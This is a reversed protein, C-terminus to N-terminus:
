GSISLTCRARDTHARCVRLARIGNAANGAGGTYARRLWADIWFSTTRVIAKQDDSMSGSADLLYVLDETGDNWVNHVPGNAPYGLFDGPGIVERRDDLEAVGSGSLVFM